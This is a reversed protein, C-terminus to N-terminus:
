RANQQMHPNSNIVPIPIPYVYRSDNAPLTYSIGNVIRFLNINAGDKNIRRLDTWRLGRFCLEKRREQLVLGLIDPTDDVTYPTFSGDKFRKVLLRNIDDLAKAADGARAECEARILYIEDTAIGAYIGYTASYTGKFSYGPNKPRFFVQRRLDDQAYSNYLFSDVLAYRPNVPILDPSRIMECHFIDEENFVTFPYSANTDITNYDMLNSQIQLCSDAYLKANSYENMTLYVRALLGYCAAKGPQTAYLPSAPLLGSAIRTDAIIKEYTAVLSSRTLNETLSSTVRLPIGMWIAASDADYTKAFIQALQYFLHARYFLASGKAKNYEDQEAPNVDLNQLGDLVVNAMYISKYPLNWDFIQEGEFVNKDWIYARQYLPKLNGNYVDDTVYYNDAGTEGLAPVVGYGEGNMYTSNDLIAQYDAITEPVVLAPNPKTDLFESKRCGIICVFLIIIFYLKM